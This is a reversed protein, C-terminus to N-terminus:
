ILSSAAFFAPRLILELSNLRAVRLVCYSTTEQNVEKAVWKRKKGWSVAAAQCLLQREKLRLLYGTLHVLM